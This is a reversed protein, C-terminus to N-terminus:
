APARAKRFGLLGIGGVGLGLMVFSAPEPIATFNTFITGGLNGPAGNITPNGFNDASGVYTVGGLVFSGSTPPNYFNFVTGDGTNVGALILRGTVTLTQTANTGPGTGGAPFNTLVFVDQYNVTFTNSNPALTSTSVGVDGINVTNGGPVFLGARAVNELFLTTGGLSAQAGTTGNVFTGGNTVSLISLSTTYNYSARASDGVFLSVAVAMLFLPRKMSM